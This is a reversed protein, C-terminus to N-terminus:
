GGAVVTMEATASTGRKAPDYYEYAVAAPVTLKVPMTAHLGYKLTLRKGPELARLYLLASRPTIQFKAVDGASVHEELDSV